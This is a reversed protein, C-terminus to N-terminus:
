EENIYAAVLAYNSMIGLDHPRVPTLLEAAYELVEVDKLFPAHIGQLRSVLQMRSLERVDKRTMKLM